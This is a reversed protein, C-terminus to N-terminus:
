CKLEKNINHLKLCIFFREKHLEINPMSICEFGENENRGVRLIMYKRVDYGNEKLAIGYGAVQTFAESYIAKSTKIDILTLENNIKVLLDCTGGFQYKESVLKMESNILEFPNNKKWELYKLFSNEALSIDEKSYSDFNPKEGKNDHHIMAHSLTGVGALVDVYKKSDIGNLGLNNAWKILAPKAMVSLITTVGCLRKGKENKYVTYTRSKKSAVKIDTM